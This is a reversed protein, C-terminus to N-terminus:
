INLRKFIKIIIIYNIKIIFSGFIIGIKGKLLKITKGFVATGKFMKSGLYKSITLSLIFASFNM